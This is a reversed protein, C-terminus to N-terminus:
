RVFTTAHQACESACSINLSRSDPQSAKLNAHLSLIVRHACVTEVTNNDVVVGVILDCDRGSDFLEGLQHSLSTNNNFVYEYSLDQNKPEPGSQFSYVIHIFFLNDSDIGSHCICIENM